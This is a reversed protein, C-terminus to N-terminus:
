QPTVKWVTGKGYQGCDNTTGYVNGNADIALPGGPIFEVNGSYWLDSFNGGPPRMMVRGWYADDPAACAGAGCNPHHSVAVYVNGAADTALGSHEAWGFSYDPSQYPVSFVWGGNSPTLMFVTVQRSYVQGGFVGYINGSKDLVLSNAMDGGYGTLTYVVTETWSGGSPTLEFVVGAGNGTGASYTTGYLNGDNGMFLSLPGDGDSGGTFSYLIKETWGGPSPTLEFVAGHGYAGGWVSIGYLNGAQDFAAIGGASAGDTFRYLM